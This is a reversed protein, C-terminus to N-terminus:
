EPTTEVKWTSFYEKIHRRILTGYWNWWLTSFIIHHMLPNKRYEGNLGFVALSLFELSCSDDPQTTNFYHPKPDGFPICKKVPKMSTCSADPDGRSKLLRRQKSIRIFHKTDLTPSVSRHHSYRYHPKLYASAAKNSCSAAIFKSNTM